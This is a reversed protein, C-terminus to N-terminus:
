RSVTGDLYPAIVVARGSEAADYAALTLALTAKHDAATGAPVAGQEIASLFNGFQVATASSFPNMGDTGIVTAREAQQLVAQGGQVVHLGMFPKRQRTHM